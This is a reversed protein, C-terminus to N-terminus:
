YNMRENRVRLCEAHRKAADYGYTVLQSKIDQMDYKALYKGRNKYIIDVIDDGRHLVVEKYLPDEPDEILLLKTPNAMDINNEYGERKFRSM